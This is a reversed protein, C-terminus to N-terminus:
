ARRPNKKTGAMQVLQLAAREEAAQAEDRAQAPELALALALEARSSSGGGTTTPAHPLADTTLKAYDRQVRALRASRADQWASGRSREADDPLWGRDHWVSADASHSGLVTLLAHETEDMEHAVFSPIGPRAPQTRKRSSRRGEEESSDQPPETVQLIPTGPRSTKPSPPPSPPPTGPPPGIPAPSNSRSGPPSPPPTLDTIEIVGLGLQIGVDNEMVRLPVHWGGLDLPRPFLRYPDIPCHPCRGIFPFPFHSGCFCVVDSSFYGHGRRYGFNYWLCEAQGFNPWGEHLDLHPSALNGM